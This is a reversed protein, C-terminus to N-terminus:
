ILVDKVIHKIYYYYYIVGRKVHDERERLKDM